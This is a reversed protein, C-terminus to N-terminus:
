PAVEVASGWGIEAYEIRGVGEGGLLCRRSAELQSIAAM